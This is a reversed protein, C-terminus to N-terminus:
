LVSLTKKPPGSFSFKEDKTYASSPSKTEAEDFTSVLFVDFLEHAKPPATCILINM